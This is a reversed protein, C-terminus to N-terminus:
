EYLRMLETGQYYFGLITEMDMGQAAMGNAGYQSMGIGHGSGGGVLTVGEKLSQVYFSASPLMGSVTLEDGDKNYLTDMWIGLVQRIDHENTLEASGQDCLISLRLVAGSASRELIRLGLVEKWGDLESISLEEGDNDKIIVCDPRSEDIGQLKAKVQSFDRSLDLCARWRYYSGSFDYDEEDMKDIFSRFSDEDSLDPLEEGSKGRVNTLYSVNEGGWIELGNTVGDSTSFFYAHIPLQDRTLIQGRTAEVAALVKEDIAVQNYVQYSVSDDVDAGYQPYNNASLQTVIYTRACIAQAKLAEEEFYAPMESPVVGCVYDEIGVENVLAYGEEYRSICFSGAYGLTKREGDEDLLYLKGQECEVLASEGVELKLKGCRSVQNKKKKKTEGHFTIQYPANASFYLEPALAEGDQLLLIHIQTDADVQSIQESTELQDREKQQISAEQNDQQEEEMAALLEQSIGTEVSEGSATASKPNTVLFILVILLVCIGLLCCLLVQNGEIFFNGARNKQIRRGRRRNM